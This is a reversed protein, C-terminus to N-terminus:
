GNQSFVRAVRVFRSKYYADLPTITVGMQRGSTSHIFSIAGNVNATILGMHGISNSLSDTGTFLIIDGRKAQSVPVTKGVGGFQMSSRPVQINFHNFVYTIFGSCDFGAQPNSSGYLYPVGKQMEAFQMLQAPTTNGTNITNTATDYKSTVMTPATDHHTEATDAKARAAQAKMRDVNNNQSLQGCGALVFLLIFVLTKM